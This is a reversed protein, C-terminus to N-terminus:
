SVQFGSGFVLTLAGLKTGVEGTLQLGLKGSTSM